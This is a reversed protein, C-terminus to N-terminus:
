ADARPPAARSDPFRHPHMASALDELILDVGPDNDPASVTVSVVSGDPGTFQHPGDHFAGMVCPGLYALGALEHANGCRVNQGEQVHCFCPCYTSRGTEDELGVNPCKGHEDDRCEPNLLIRGRRGHDHDQPHGPDLPEGPAHAHDNGAM